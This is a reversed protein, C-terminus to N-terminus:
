TQAIIKYKTSLNDNENDSSDDPCNVLENQITNFIHTRTKVTSISRPSTDSIVDTNHVYSEDAAKPAKQPAM